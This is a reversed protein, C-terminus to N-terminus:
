GWCGSPSTRKEGEADDRKSFSIADESSVSGREKLKQSLVLHFSVATNAEGETEMETETEANQRRRERRRGERKKAGEKSQLVEAGVLAVLISGM